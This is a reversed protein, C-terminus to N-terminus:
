ATRDATSDNASEASFTNALAIFYPRSQLGVLLQGDVLWTPTATVQYLRGQAEAYELENDALGSTMQHEFIFPDIDSDGACRAIVAWDGIDEGLAFYAHFVAANFAQHSTPQTVRVTEAAALATRSYPIRPSWNLELAAGVAEAALRDYISGTRPPAPIGGVPIGPHIQMPLDIVTVAADRLIRNRDQAVYCFPCIFDFWHLVPAISM